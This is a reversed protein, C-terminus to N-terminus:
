VPIGRGRSGGVVALSEANIPPLPGSHSLVFAAGGGGDLRFSFGGHVVVVFGLDGLQEVCEVASIQGGDPVRHDVGAEGRGLVVLEGGVHDSAPREHVVVDGVATAVVAADPGGEEGGGVELGGVM